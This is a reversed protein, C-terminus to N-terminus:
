VFVIDVFDCVRTYGIAQYIHNTAANAGDAFLNTYAVERDLLQATLAATIATGFGQRRHARPTYVLGISATDANRRVVAACAVPQGDVEWIWVDGAACLQHMRAEVDSSPPLGADREFARGWQTILAADAETSQRPQGPVPAPTILADCRYLILSREVRSRM